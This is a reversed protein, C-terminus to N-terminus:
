YERVAPADEVPAVRNFVMINCGCSSYKGGQSQDWVVFAAWALLVACCLSLFVLGAYWTALGVNTSICESTNKRKILQKEYGIPYKLAGNHADGESRDGSVTQFLCTQNNDYHYRLYSNYCDYYETHM